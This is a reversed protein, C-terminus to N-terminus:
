CGEQTRKLIVVLQLHRLLLIRQWRKLSLVVVLLRQRLCIRVEELSM